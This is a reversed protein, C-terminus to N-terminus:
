CEREVDVLNSPERGELYGGFNECFLKGLGDSLGHPLLSEPAETCGGDLVQAFGNTGEGRSVVFRGLRERPGFLNHIRSVEFM